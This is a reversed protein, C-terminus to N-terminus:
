QGVMFVANAFLLKGNEWFARFLPNDVLYVVSGEGKEQVGFVLSESINEQINAGVFGSTLSSDDEIVGVNWGNKLYPYSASTLKLSFYARDYGFGLPHSNDMRVKYIAGPIYNSIGARQRDEYRRFAQKRESAKKDAQSGNKDEDSARRTLSFGDKDAFSSLANGVLILKGGRSIWQSIDKLKDDGFLRYYGNPVILVDYDYLNVGSFYSTGISTIPYEIGREFFHWIEGYSLSSTQPGTLVAIKPAAIYNINDSGFDYGQTVFGTYVPTINRGLRKAHNQVSQDFADGLSENARRTVVLTGPQFSKGDITFGKEAARVKVDDKHLAALFKVDELSEYPLLYAYPKNDIASSNSEQHEYGNDVSIRDQLAYAELGYVYPLAWATIDYTLSDPLKSKPEFLVTVLKSKPQYASIVLDNRSVSITKELNNRYDFAKYSRASQPKGYAILHKDLFSTLQKLKGKKNGGKIVYTKYKTGPNNQSQNFYKDFEDVVKSANLSTAEVTSIGTTYHHEIRDTLTLTDGDETIIALGAFGHGAQEYTMGIAGNFMPYTDGYSPYFLDFVEKTFYLWNNQDFYKAHNKGVTVQFERQWNTIAEHLPEAAPAFYYPNNIYQEHFDVHIHPMWQNYLAIRQQSEIQTQWAWDRNLDFLYHNPRGGPWPERHEQADGHPNATINGYQNYFNAYRDRGDPNICPDIIVVTNKLWEKTKANNPNVLEYITRVAAETTSAENGHVNYSLWVIAIKDGDPSGSELGTRKLNSLRISELKAFNEPATIFAAILPRHEYTEGYKKLVVNSANEAIHEFYEVVKHHRSFRTGLEYGM